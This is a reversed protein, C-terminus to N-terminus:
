EGPLAHGPLRPSMVLVALGMVVLGTQYSSELGLGGAILLALAVAATTRGTRILGIFTATLAGAAAAYAIAPLRSTLGENWLLLIRATSGGNALFLAWTVAAVAAAVLLTRRSPRAGLLLPTALAFGVGAVEGCWTLWRVDPLGMGDQHAVQLAIYSGNFAFAAAFFASVAWAAPKGRGAAAGALVIVAAISVVDLEFRGLVGAAAAAAAALFVAVSLAAAREMAAGARWMQWTAAPLAAMLLVAALFYVYRGSFAIARYPGALAELAPIHIATRTFTRLVVMELLSAVALAVLLLGLPPASPAEVRRHTQV